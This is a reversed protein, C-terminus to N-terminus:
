AFYDENDDQMSHIESRYANYINLVRKWEKVKADTVTGEPFLNVIRTKIFDEATTLKVKLEGESLPPPAGRQRVDPFFRELEQLDGLKGAKYWNGMSANGM